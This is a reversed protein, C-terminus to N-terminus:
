PIFPDSFKEESLITADTLTNLFALMAAVNPPAITHAPIPAVGSGPPRSLMNEVDIVSGNHFLSRRISINRLSPSKFRRENNIGLDNPDLLSFPGQPSSTIFMPPTHCGSCAIGGGPPATVFLREGEAEEETFTELGGKIRDYRSQFTVVSRIFQALAKAVLVTDAVRSGFAKEFLDPYYSAANIRQILTDLSLGMEVENQIPQLVQHELTPSREDWFMKGSEYFRINLIPMSHRDTLGGLFGQSLVNHDAFSESQIHCSACSVTQNASFKKDYFLVRGLTAGEDTIPNDAPTNDTLNLANLIHAPWNTSSYDFDVDPLNLVETNVEEFSDKKNCQTLLISILCLAILKVNSSM